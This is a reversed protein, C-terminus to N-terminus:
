VRCLRPSYLFEVLPAASPQSALMLHATGVDLGAEQMEREGETYEVDKEFVLGKVLHAASSIPAIM